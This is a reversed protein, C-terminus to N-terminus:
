RNYAKLCHEFFKGIINLILIIGLSAIVGCTAVTQVYLQLIMYIIKNNKIVLNAYNPELYIKGIIKPHMTRIKSRSHENSFNHMIKYWILM